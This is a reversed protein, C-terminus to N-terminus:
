KTRIKYCSKIANNQLGLIDRVKQYYAVLEACASLFNFSGQESVHHETIM